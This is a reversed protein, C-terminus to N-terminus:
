RLVTADIRNENGPHLDDQPNEWGTEPLPVRGEKLLPDDTERMWKELRQRMEALVDQARPDCALNNM